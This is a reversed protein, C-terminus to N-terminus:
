AGRIEQFLAQTAPDPEVGLEHSLIDACIQYQRLAEARRGGQVLALMLKRHVDERYSDMELAQRYWTEAEAADKGAYYCDGLAILAQLYALELERRRELVWDDDMDELYPGAYLAVARLLGALKEDGPPRALSDAMAKEFVAVDYVGGGSLDVHYVSEEQIYELRDKGVAQRANHLAAYFRSRAKSEPVDPWFCRCVEERQVRSRDIMYFLLSRAAARQWETATIEVGNQIVRGTGLAFVQFMREPVSTAQSPALSVISKALGQIRQCLSGMAVPNAKQAQGFAALEPFRRAQIVFRAGYGSCQSDAALARDLALLAEPEDGSQRAAEAVGLEAIAVGGWDKRDEWGDRALVFARQAAQPEDRRLLVLGREMHYRGSGEPDSAMSVRELWALAGDFDGALRACAALGIGAYAQIFPEEGPQALDLAERFLDAAVGYQDADVLLDAWGLLVWAQDRRSGAQRSCGLAEQYLKSAGGFDGALHRGYAANNLPMILAHPHGLGRAIELARDHYDLPGQVHRLCFAVRSLDTLVRSQNLLDGMQEYIELAQALHAHAGDVKGQRQLCLGLIRSAYAQIGKNAYSAKIPQLAEMAEEIKGQRYWIFGRQLWVEPLVELGATSKEISELLVLARAYEGRALWVKAVQIQLTPTSIAQGGLEEQWKVLTSHRGQNFLDPARSNMLPAAEALEGAGLYLRIAEEPDGAEASLRAAGRRLIALREPDWQALQELLFEHFLPHYRFRPAGDGEEIREIFLHQAELTGLVLAADDRHLLADCVDITMWRLVATQLLFDRVHPLQQGLVERALYAYVIDLDGQGLAQQYALQRTMQQTALVIGTVWGGMKKALAEADGARVSLNYNKELLAATESGTFCLERPPLVIIEQKATLQIFDIPPVARSSIILHVHPPLYRLFRNLLSGIDASDVEHLDDLILLFLQPASEVLENVLVGVVDALGVGGALAARTSAGVDPFRQSISLVLSSLFQAPDSDAPDLTLWCVPLEVEHAFETLLTTKGYGAAATVLTVKHDLSRFLSDLLRQRRVWGPRRVPVMVRTLITM